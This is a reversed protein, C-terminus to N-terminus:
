IKNHKNNLELMTQINILCNKNNEENKNNKNIRNNVRSFSKLINSFFNENDEEFGNLSGIYKRNSPLKLEKISTTNLARKLNLNKNSNKYSKRTYNELSVLNKYIKKDAKEKKNKKTLNALIHKNTLVSKIKKQKAKHNLYLALNRYLERISMSNKTEEMKFSNYNSLNSKNHNLHQTKNICSKNKPISNLKSLNITNSINHKNRQNKKTINNYNEFFKPINICNMYDTIEEDLNGEKQINIQNGNKNRNSNYKYNIDLEKKIQYNKIEEKKIKFEKILKYSSKTKNIINCKIKYESNMTQSINNMVTQQGVSIKRNFFNPVYLNINENPNSVSLNRLLIRKKDFSEIKAKKSKLKNIIQRSNIAKLKNINLFEENNSHNNKIKSLDKAKQTKNLNEQLKSQKIIERIISNTFPLKNEEKEENSNKNENIFFHKKSKNIYENYGKINPQHHNKLSVIKYDLEYNSKDLEKSFSNM